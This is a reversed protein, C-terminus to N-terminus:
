LFRLARIYLTHECVRPHTVLRSPDSLLWRAAYGLVRRAADSHGDVAQLALFEVFATEVQDDTLTTLDIPPPTKRPRGWPGRKM